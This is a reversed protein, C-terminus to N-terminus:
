PPANLFGTRQFGDVTYKGMNYQVVGGHEREPRSVIVDGLRIDNQPSPLGGGIGVMFGIQINPYTNMMRTAVMAAFNTGYRGQQRPDSLLTDPSLPRKPTDKSLHFSSSSASGLSTGIGSDYFLSGNRVCPTMKEDTPVAIQKCAPSKVKEGLKKLDEHPEVRTPRMRPVINELRWGGIGPVLIDNAIAWERLQIDEVTQDIPEGNALHKGVHKMRNPWSDPGAFKQKCFPCSSQAPPKRVEHWCRRLVEDTATM